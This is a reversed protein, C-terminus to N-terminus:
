WGKGESDRGLTKPREGNPFHELEAVMENSKRCKKLGANDKKLYLLCFQLCYELPPIITDTTRNETRERIIGVISSAKKVTTASQTSVKMSCLGM